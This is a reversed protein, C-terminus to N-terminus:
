FLMSFLLARNKSVLEDRTNETNVYYIGTKGVGEPRSYIVHSGSVIGPSVANNDLQLAYNTQLKGTGQTRININENTVADKTTIEYNTIELGGIETRNPYFTATLVGDVLIGIKSESGQPYGTTSNFYALSGGTGATNPAVDKDAIIVRTDLKTIQFTPNNQIADDVYKKNPLDDDDTVQTEYNTTGAVKVVGTGTGILTLDGSDGNGTDTLIRKVKLNSDTYGYSGATGYAIAWTGASGAIGTPNTEDFILAAKSSSGRDIEVGSYILTVGSGTEGTNLTIINDEIDLTATNVTTTDGQVTLDGTVLVNASDLVIAGNETTKINYDGNVRFFQGM